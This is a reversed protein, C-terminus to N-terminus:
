ELLNMWLPLSLNIATFFNLKDGDRTNDDANFDGLIVINNLRDLKVDDVTELLKDWFIAPMNPPRYLVCLLFINNQSRIEIWMAEIETSELDIRRRAILRDSVWAAV